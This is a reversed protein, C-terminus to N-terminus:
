RWGVGTFRASKSVGGAAATVGLRRGPPHYRLGSGKAPVDRGSIKRRAPRSAAALREGLGLRACPRYGRRPTRVKGGSPGGVLIPLEVDFDLPAGINLRRLRSRLRSVTKSAM